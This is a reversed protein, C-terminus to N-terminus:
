GAALAEELLRRINQIVEDLAPAMLRNKALFASWQARKTSDYAFEDRLGVPWSNLMPTGRRAFTAMVAERLRSVDSVGACALANLDFYDKMRSNRSGLIAIAYFKEAIVTEPSYARLRPRPLDLLTPYELWQPPPVVADGIGVDVQVRLRAAGLEAALMVRTGGYSDEVRIPEVRVTDAMYVMADPEIEVKCVDSFIKILADDDLNGFGLMDADRTPRLADGFWALMLLAGKLVFRDPCAISFVNSLIAPLCWIQIPASRKRM